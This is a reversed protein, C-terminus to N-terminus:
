QDLALYFGHRDHAITLENRNLHIQFSEPRAMAYNEAQRATAWRFIAGTEPDSQVILGEAVDDTVLWLGLRGHSFAWCRPGDIESIHKVPTLVCDQKEVIPRTIRAIQIDVPDGDQEMENLREIIDTPTPRAM